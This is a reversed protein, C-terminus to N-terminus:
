SHSTCPHGFRYMGEGTAVQDFKMSTLNNYAVALRELFISTMGIAHWFRFVFSQDM